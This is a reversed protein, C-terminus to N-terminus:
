KLTQLDIANGSGLHLVHGADPTMSKCVRFFLTFTFYVTLHHDTRSSVLGVDIGVDVKAARLPPQKVSDPPHRLDTSDGLCGFVHLM